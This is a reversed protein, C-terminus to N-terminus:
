SVTVLMIFACMMATVDYDAVKDALLKQIELLLDSLEKVLPTYRDSQPLTNEIYLHYKKQLTEYRSVLRDSISFLL